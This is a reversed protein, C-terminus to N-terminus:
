MKEDKEIPRKAKIKACKQGIKVGDGQVSKLPLGPIGLLDDTMMQTLKRWQAKPIKFDQGLNLLTQQRASGHVRYSEVLSFTDVQKRSKLTRSKARIYM